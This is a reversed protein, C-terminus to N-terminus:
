STQDNFILINEATECIDKIKMALEILQGSVLFINDSFATYNTPTNM